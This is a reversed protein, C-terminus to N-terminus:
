WSGGGGGGGGGGAGGGGGFGSSGSSSPTSTMASSVSSSFSGINDAFSAAVFPYPSSYWGSTDPQRELGEFAKAWKETCRYVIAYPLYKEFIGVEEAFRARDTEATVMYERFGRARRYLERGAATRRPMLGALAAIALSALVVPFGVIGAGALGFVYVLVASISAAVLGGIRYMMRITEPSTRFMRDEKVSVAYLQSKVEALDSYFKDELDDLKVAGDTGKFLARLLSAEYPLMAHDPERLKTLSYKRKEEETIRLYGRVALDVITASVDLTDAREDMLVGVEAPRLPRRGVDPPTYEVVVTERAGLPKAEEVQSGSLYQVDGYWRDRGQTWWLRGIAGFAALGVLLAVAIPLPKLGLFDRIQEGVSKREVLFPAPVEVSGKQLAVVVTLQEGIRLTRTTQFDARAPSIGTGCPERAGEFGEFCDVKTIAPATVVASAREMPVVWTGTVNWFLEEHDTFSNLAGELTYNIVYRQAGTVFRDPDGIKIRLLAGDRSTEYKWARQGDTVSQVKIQYERDHHDDYRFVVPIDRFIGHRDTATFEVFLDEIVDISGDKQIAYSAGFSRIVWGEEARSPRPPMAVFALAVVLAALLARKSYPM